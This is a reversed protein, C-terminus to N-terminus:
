IMKNVFYFEVAHPEVVGDDILEELLADARDQVEMVEIQGDLEIFFVVAPLGLVDDVEEGDERLTAELEEAIADLVPDREVLRHDDDLALIEVLEM